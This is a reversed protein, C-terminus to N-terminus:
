LLNYVEVLAIGSTNNKGLVIATYNGPALSTVIASELDNAPQLGSARVEAEQSAHTRDNIKWNDNSALATGNANYLQLIPDALAGQVGAGTLSPGLARVVVQSGGGSGAGVIVGGIMVNNGTSVFGRTSINTLKSAVAPALDYVEILGIGTTNNKGSLIATYSGPNLTTVIASEFDNAPALGTAQVQSQQNTGDSKTRWNDNTALANSGQFLQLMPNTLVGTVGAAALSPGMGRIIVQKPATGTVIFGAIAVKDGTLVDARSSINLLQSALPAVRVYYIDEEGNFTASYAVDAGTNDSVMTIYDGIKNQNPYGLFPNFSTTVPVDASWTTGGDRSYSYFLQSDTNNAAYRTDLWIVDIRGNPAVALAGFWHWKNPDVPDNNIRRPASFSTGANTSRVFMVESGTTFGPLQVSALMYVNNNTAGGSRDVALWVQGVLGVPNIAGSIIDGGLNVATSQDFNPTVAAMKANTSRECWIQGTNLNLGGVYLNGTSDVDLTGFSPANPINVPDSWSLGGDKSRSFQRGNFNNGDPSGSWAQYQFGHGISGVSRDITFWQKDGGYAAGLNTWSQGSILSRWMDVFFTQLLSLYFFHGSDDTGLVPDSRFVNNELVGPFTWRSGGNSTYAWGAQRFNSAISNFQRWGIAMRNHNTPDVCISPENAADNTINNGNADVNVQYSTFAGFQSVMRGTAERRYIYIPPDQVKEHAETFFQRNREASGPVIALWLVLLL